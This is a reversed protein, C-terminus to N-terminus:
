LRCVKNEFRYWISLINVTNPTMLLIGTILNERQTIAKTPKSTGRNLTITIVLTCNLIKYVLEYEFVCVSSSEHINTCLTHGKSILENVYM